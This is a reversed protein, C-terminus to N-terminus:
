NKSLSRKNKSHKMMEVKQKTKNGEKKMKKRKEKM